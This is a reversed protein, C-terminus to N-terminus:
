KYNKKMGANVVKGPMVKTTLVPSSGADAGSNVRATTVM